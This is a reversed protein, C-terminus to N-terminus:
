KGIIKEYTSDLWEDIWHPDADIGEMWEELLRQRNAEAENRCRRVLSPNPKEVGSKGVGKTDLPITKEERGSSVDTNKSGDHFEPLDQYLNREIKIADALRAQAEALRYALRARPETALSDITFGEDGAIVEYFPLIEDATMARHLGHRIANQCARRKGARSKPGTSKRANRRNAEIQRRSAM